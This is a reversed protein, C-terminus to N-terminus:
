FAEGIYVYFTSDDRGVAYDISVNLRQDKSALVRMGVGAAGLTDDSGFDGFSEAVGGVGAFAVAGLRKWLPVRYEVQAAYMADDYYRGVPYGRLDHASGFQCREFFPTDDSTECLAVRWALVDQDRFGGHFFNFAMAYTDYESDSGFDDRAFNSRFTLYSGSGPQFSHDRTDWEAVLGLGGIDLDLGDEPILDQVADPAPFEVTARQYRLGAYLRATVRRLAQAMVGGLRQETSFHFDPAIEEVYLDYRAVALAAGAKVRWRDESFKSDQLIGVGWSDTDTYGAAVATMSAPSKPDFKYLLLAALALGNGITPNVIPIPALVFNVKKKTQGSPEDHVLETDTNVPFDNAFGPSASLSLLGLCSHCLSRM